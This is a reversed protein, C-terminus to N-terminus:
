GPAKAYTIVWHCLVTQLRDEFACTVAIGTDRMAGEETDVADVTVCPGTARGKNLNECQVLGLVCALIIQFWRGCRLSM